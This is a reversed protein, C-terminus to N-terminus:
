KYPFIISFTTGVGEQSELTIKGENMEIFEKTIRLGLGSGKENNTGLTTSANGKRIEEQMEKSIGVGTDTVEIKIQNEALKTSIIVEQNEHSFKIANTLLNRISTSLLNYDASIHIDNTKDSKNLLTINKEAANSRLIDISEAIVANVHLPEPNNEMNGIQTKAWLLINDVLTLLQKSSLNLQDLTTDQEDKSMNYSYMKMLNSLNSINYIPAKLDHSILTFFKNREESFRELDTNKKKLEETLRKNETYKRFYIFILIGVLVLSSALLLILYYQIQNAESLKELNRDKSRLEFDKELNAIKESTEENVLKMNLESYKKYYELSKQYDEIRSYYNSLNRYSDSELLSSKIAISIEVAKKLDSEVKELNGLDLNLQSLNNLINATEWKDDLIEAFRLAQNFYGLARKSDGLEAQLMGLNNFSSILGVSDKLNRSILMSEHIYKFSSDLENKRWFVVGINNLVNSIGTSDNQKLALEYAQKFYKLAIKNQGYQIYATGLSNLLNSQWVINNTEKAIELGKLYSELAKDMSDLDKYLIGLKSYSRILYVKDPIKEAIEIAKIANDISTYSDTNKQLNSLKLLALVKDQASADSLYVQMLSDKENSVIINTLFFILIITLLGKKM